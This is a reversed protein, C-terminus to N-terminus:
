GQGSCSHHPSSIDRHAGVLKKPRRGGRRLASLRGTERYQGFIAPRVRGQKADDFVQFTFSGDPEVRTLFRVTHDHPEDYHLDPAWDDMGVQGNM